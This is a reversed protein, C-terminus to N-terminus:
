WKKANKQVNQKVNSGNINKNETGVKQQTSKTHEIKKQQTGSKKYQSSEELKKENQKMEQKQTCTGCSCLVFGAAVLPIIIKKM